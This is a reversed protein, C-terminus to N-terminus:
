RKKRTQIDLPGLEGLPGYIIENAAIAILTGASKCMEPIAVTLHKYEYQLLRAMKYGAHPDGGFTNM